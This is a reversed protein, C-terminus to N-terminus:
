RAARLRAYVERDAPFMPDLALAEDLTCWRAEAVERPDPALIGGRLRARFFHLRHSGDTTPCVHLCDLPEVDLGVEERAERIAAAVLSEGAEVGGTVPSWWGRFPDEGRRILLYRGADELLVAVADPLASPPRPVRGHYRQGRSAACTSADHLTTGHVRAPVAPRLAADFPSSARMPIGEVRTRTAM